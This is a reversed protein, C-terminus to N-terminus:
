TSSWRQMLKARALWPANSVSSLLPLVGTWTHHHAQHPRQLWGTTCRSGHVALAPAYLCTDLRTLAFSAEQCLTTLLSRSKSRTGGHM